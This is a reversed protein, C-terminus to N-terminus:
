TAGSSVTAARSPREALAVALAAHEDGLVAAEDADDRALVEVLRDAM